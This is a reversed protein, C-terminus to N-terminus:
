SKEQKESKTIHSIGWFFIGTGIGTFFFLLGIGIPSGWSFVSYLVDM